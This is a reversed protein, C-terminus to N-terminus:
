NENKNLKNMKSISLFLNTDENIIKLKKVPFKDNIYEHIFEKEQKLKINNISFLM